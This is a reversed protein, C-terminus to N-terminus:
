WSGMLLNVSGMFFFVGQNLFSASSLSKLCRWSEVSYSSQFFASLSVGALGFGETFVIERHRGSDM